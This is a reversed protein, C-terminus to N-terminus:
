IKPRTLSVYTKMDYKAYKESFPMEASAELEKEQIAIKDIEALFIEFLAVIHRKVRPSCRVHIVNKRHKTGEIHTYINVYKITTIPDHKGVEKKRAM